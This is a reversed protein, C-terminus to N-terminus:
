KTFRATVRRYVGIRWPPSDAIEARSRLPETEEGPRFAPYGRFSDSSSGPPRAPWCRRSGAVASAACAAATAVTYPALVVAVFTLASALQDPRVVIAVAAVFSAVSLAGGLAFRRLAPVAFGTDVMPLEPM